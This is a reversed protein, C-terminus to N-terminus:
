KCCVNRIAPSTRESSSDRHQRDGHHLILTSSKFARERSGCVALRPWEGTFTTQTQPCLKAPSQAVVDQLSCKSYFSDGKGKERKRVEM